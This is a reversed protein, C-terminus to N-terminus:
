TDHIVEMEHLIEMMESDRYSTYWWEQVRKLHEIQADSLLYIHDVVVRARKRRDDDPHASGNFRCQCHKFDYECIPCKNSMSM